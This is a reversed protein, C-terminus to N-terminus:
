KQLQRISVMYECFVISSNMILQAEHERINIRRTGVGHADSNANRMEAISQVITELAGLLSNIRNDYEKSQQMGYLNKVENFQKKIDGKPINPCNNDELIRVLIEEMTTRSKTVVSDYNGAIFDSKCRERLDRVYPISLMDLKPSDIIPKKGADVIYFHEASYSLEKRTLKICSNIYAIGAAFISQHAEDIKEMTPLSRLQDFREVSFFWKLLEDMRGNGIAYDILGEVYYWRSGPTYSTYGFETCIEELRNASYYPMGYETGNYTVLQPGSGELFEYIEKKKLIKFEEDKKKVPQWRM